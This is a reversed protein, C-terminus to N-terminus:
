KEIDDEDVDKTACGPTAVENMYGAKVGQEQMSKFMAAAIQERTPNM